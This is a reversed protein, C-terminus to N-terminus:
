NPGEPLGALRLAKILREAADPNRYPAIFQIGSLDLEPQLALAEQVEWNADDIRGLEAYAAALFIRQRLAEPNRTIAQMNYDVSTQLNGLSFHLPVESSTM